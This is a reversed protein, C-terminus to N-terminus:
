TATPVSWSTNPRGLSPKSYSSIRSIISIKPSWTIGSNSGSLTWEVSFYRALATRFYGSHFAGGGSM